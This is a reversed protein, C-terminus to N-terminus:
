IAGRHSTRGLSRRLIREFLGAAVVGLTYALLDRPDFGSGLTLAGFTTRRLADLAPTHYLQSAEVAFCITLAVFGRDRISAAPVLVAVWWAMMAAWTADGLVDRATPGFVDGHWHVGLGLAITGLALLAFSVRSSSSSRM